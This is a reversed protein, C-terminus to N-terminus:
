YIATNITLKDAFIVNNLPINKDPMQYNTGMLKIKCKKINLIGSQIDKSRAM